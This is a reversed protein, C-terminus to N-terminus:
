MEHNTMHNINSFEMAAEYESGIETDNNLSAENSSSAGVVM